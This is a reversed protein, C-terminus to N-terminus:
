FFKFKYSNLSDLERKYKLSDAKLKQIKNIIEIRDEEYTRMLINQTETAKEIKKSKEIVIEEDKEQLDNRLGKLSNVTNNLLEQNETRRNEIDKKDIFYYTLGTFCLCVVAIAFSIFVVNFTKSRTSPKAVGNIPNYSEFKSKSHPSSSIKILEITINDLGGADLASNILLDGKQRISADKSMIEGIIKDSIMGSLGDSCILFVDDNKPKVTNFSPELAPKIGLAKLIRNKNPHHEAEDDTIQGADVLAQVFSHDKTIRHLQKEKGLYLYIRSDGVHAIYAESDQLLVICATTGMGKLEPHGNAYGLIQMNAYQLADNLAQIPQPYKDAKLYEIISKVAISSAQKGGVHGGMGDCVVFVDGNPTLTAMDHSDEQATRVNGIVDNYYINRTDITTLSM